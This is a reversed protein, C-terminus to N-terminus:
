SFTLWCRCSALEKLEAGHESDRPCALQSGDIEFLDPIPITTGNLERHTKRTKKDIIARWTKKTKGNEWADQLEKYEYFTHAEGAAINIAREDSLFYEEDKHEVTTQVTETALRTIHESVYRVNVDELDYLRYEVSTILSEEDITLGAALLMAVYSFLWFYVEDIEEALKKRKEKDEQSIELDDYFTDYFSRANDRTLNNLKDM